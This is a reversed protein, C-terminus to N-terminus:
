SQKPCINVIHTKEYKLVYNAVRDKYISKKTPWGHNLNTDSPLDNLFSFSIQIVMVSGYNRSKLELSLLFPITGYYFISPVFYPINTVHTIYNFLFLNYQLITLNQKVYLLSDFESQYNIKNKYLWTKEEIEYRGLIPKYFWNKIPIETIEKNGRLFSLLSIPDKNDAIATYLFKYKKM